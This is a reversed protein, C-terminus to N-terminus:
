IIYRDDCGQNLFFAIRALFRTLDKCNICGKFSREGYNEGYNKYSRELFVTQALIKGFEKLSSLSFAKDQLNQFIGGLDKYLFCKKEVLSNQLIVFPPREPNSHQSSTQRLAAYCSSWISLLRSIM